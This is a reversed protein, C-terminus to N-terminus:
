RAYLVYLGLAACLLYIAAIIAAVVSFAAPITTAVLAIVHLVTFFFAFPLFQGYDPQIMHTPVNEGCSYAEASEASRGSPRIALKSMAWSLCVVAVFLVAFAVPPSLLINM